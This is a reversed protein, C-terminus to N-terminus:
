RQPAPTSSPTGPTASPTLRPPLPTPIYGRARFLSFQLPKGSRQVLTLRGASEVWRFCKRVKAELEDDGKFVEIIVAADRGDLTKLDTWYDFQLDSEGLPTKGHMEEPAPIHFALQSAVFYKKGLGLYFSGEPLEARLEKARKAVRDWGHMPSLQPIKPLQFAAHVSVLLIVTGSFAALGRGYLTALAPRLETMVGSMVVTLGLWCPLPWLVHTPMTWSVAFFFVFMPVFCWFLYREEPRPSRASRKVALIAIPLTLPLVAAWQLGLYKLAATILFENASNFREKGQFRISAWDHQANWYTVPTFVVLALVAALYPWPTALWRRDRRSTLLYFLMSVGFFVITYKSIMGLGLAVGAPIWLIGRGTDLAEWVLSMTLAWFFLMPSDPFGSAATVYTIPQITQLLVAWLAGPEGYLRKALRALIATTGAAFLLPLFRIAFPTDGFFVRGLAISWAIMGPHDLYSWDLHRAFDWHYAEEPTPPIFAAFVARVLTVAILWRGWVPIRNM